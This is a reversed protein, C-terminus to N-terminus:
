KRFSDKLSIELGIKRGERIAYNTGRDEPYVQAMSCIYFGNYKSKASEILISYEKEVVPQAWRAKWLHHKKIWARKIKPFMKKLYPFSFNLLQNADMKYLRDTHPLYKSLYVIHSGGYTESKEFNTHEILGVFPFKPDNVNMWYTKSLSRDLELVLCVNALYNIRNLAHIYEKKAWSNILKSIIPLSPTAIINRATIKKKAYTVEWFNHKPAIQSVAAKTIIKGGMGEIKKSIENALSVFGGKFYALQEEGKKGRSGGRLKIKNWFWVASVTDAYPGFKGKLLPEWVIEYVKKGGLKKLWESATKNELAMWNHILRVRLTLLGLRIRNFFSLPKFNLLDLPTSLKYFNHAYYMSTNTPNIDVQNNLGIEDILRMVHEDNTFWHHYFRDLKAGNVEFASALGGIESESELIVVTKGHKLLEYAASLGSFGAGV